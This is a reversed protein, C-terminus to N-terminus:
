EVKELLKWVLTLQHNRVPIQSVALRKLDGPGREINQRIKVISYDPHDRNTRKLNEPGKILEKYIIGLVGIVIPM